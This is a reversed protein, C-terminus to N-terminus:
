CAAAILKTYRCLVRFMCQCNHGFCLCSHAKVAGLLHLRISTEVAWSTQKAVAFVGLWAVWPVVVLRQWRRTTPLSSCPPVLSSGRKHNQSMLVLRLTTGNVDHTCGARASALRDNRREVRLVRDVDPPARPADCARRGADQALKHRVVRVAYRRDVAAANPEVAHWSM